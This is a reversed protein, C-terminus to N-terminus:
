IRARKWRMRCNILSSKIMGCVKRVTVRSQSLERSSSSVVRTVTAVNVPSIVDRIVALKIVLPAITRITGITWWISGKVLIRLVTSLLEIWSNM